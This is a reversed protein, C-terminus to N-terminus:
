WHYAPPTATGSAVFGVNVGRASCSPLCSRTLTVAVFVPVGVQNAAYRWNSANGWHVGLYYTHFGVGADNNLRWAVFSTCERNYFNWPDVLSDQAASKLRSPYDDVGVTADSTPTTLPSLALMGLALVLVAVLRRTLGVRGRPPSLPM